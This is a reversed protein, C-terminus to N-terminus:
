APFASNTFALMFLIAGQDPTETWEVSYDGAAAVEKVAFACQVGLNSPLNLLSEVVIFGNNPVATHEQAGGDGFWAAVILAPRDVTVTGSVLAEGANRYTVDSDAVTDANLAQIFALSVEGNLVSDKTFSVSHAPDTQGAEATYARVQFGTGYPVYYSSGAPALVNGTSDVPTAGNSTYGACFYLFSSEAQCTTDVADTVVPNTTSTEECWGFATAGQRPAVGWATAVGDEITIKMTDAGVSFPVDSDIVIQTPELESSATGDEAQRGQEAVHQLVASGFETGSDTKITPTHKTGGVGRVVGDIDNIIRSFPTGDPYRLIIDMPISAESLLPFGRRLPPM